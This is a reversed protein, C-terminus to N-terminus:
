CARADCASGAQLHLGQGGPVLLLKQGPVAAQVAGGDGGTREVTSTRKTSPADPHHLMQAAHQQQQRQTSCQDTQDATTSSM